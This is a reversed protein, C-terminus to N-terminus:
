KGGYTSPIINNYNINVIEDLEVSFDIGLLNFETSGWDLKWRVDHYM